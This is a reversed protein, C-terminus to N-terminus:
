ETKDMNRKIIIVLVPILIIQLIIGPLANTVAGALFLNMGFKSSNFGMCCFMVIGWVFRGIVMASILSLYVNIKKKPLKHYLGGAVFGYTALEFAMCFAGPFMIPMGLTFSRLIPVIFGVCLGWPAGCFFGCLLVPIHMPCLMNGIQQIQGTLFPLVYALALFMGALTLKKIENKRKM